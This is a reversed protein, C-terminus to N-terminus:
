SSCSFTMSAHSQTDRSDDGNTPPFFDLCENQLADLRKRSSPRLNVGKKPLLEVKWEETGKTSSSGPLFIHKVPSIDAQKAAMPKNEAQHTWVLVLLMSNADPIKKKKVM